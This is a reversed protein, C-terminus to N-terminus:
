ASFPMNRTTGSRRSSSAHACSIRGVNKRAASRGACYRGATFELGVLIGNDAQEPCSASRVLARSSTGLIERLQLGTRPQRADQVAGRVQSSTGGNHGGHGHYMLLHMLPCALLLLYPLGLALVYHERLVYFAVILGLGILAVGGRSRWWRTASYNHM